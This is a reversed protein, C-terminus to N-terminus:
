LSVRRLGQCASEREQIEALTRSSAGRSSKMKLREYEQTFQESISADQIVVLTEDNLYNAAVSWNHSGVIVTKNDVVAFKHHLVDGQPLYAMGGEMIPKDWPNNDPEYVCRPGLMKLGLLDLLESYYRFAFKPEILVGIEVGDDNLAKLTDAIRQESFVFLAGVVKTQAKKLFEAILGSVSEEWSYRKSTPSFQVTLKIGDVSVSQAGRYTKGLGYKGREGNGWLQMFEDIFLKSFSTSDVLILSNANGRSKPALTDGHICSMTFNATSVITSKEDVIMFKHHMLSSGKSGDSTDDMIKIGAKRIMYIADRTEIEALELRGNGNIDIFAHLDNVKSTAHDDNEFIERQSLVDFNYDHELVIRIEVGQKKKEILAQAILPLRLEQVALFINKNAKNIEAVIVEELNDGSRAIGRYPDSYSHNQNHNFYSKVGAWGTATLLLFPLVIMQKMM